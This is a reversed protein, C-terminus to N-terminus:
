RAGAGPGARSLGPWADGTLAVLMAALAMANSYWPATAATVTTVSVTGWLTPGYFVLVLLPLTVRAWLAVRPFAFALLATMALAPAIWGAGAVQMLALLLTQRAVDLEAWDMQLAAAHCPMFENSLLYTLGPALSVAAIIACSVLAVKRASAYPEHTCHQIARAPQQFVGQAGM